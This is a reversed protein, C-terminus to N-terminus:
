ESGDMPPLSNIYAILENAREGKSYTLVAKICNRKLADSIPVRISAKDNKSLDILNYLNHLTTEIIETTQPHGSSNGGSYMMGLSHLLLIAGRWRSERNNKSDICEVTAIESLAMGAMVESVPEIRQNVQNSTEQIQACLKKSIAQQKLELENSLKELRSDLNVINYIQFGILVTVLITLASIITASGSADKILSTRMCSALALASFLFAIISM